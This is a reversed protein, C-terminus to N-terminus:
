GVPRLRVVAEVGGGDASELTIEGADVEVLRKAIALGLGSGSGSRARWFRDFARAREEDTLGVGEDRVRVEPGATAVTVVGGPPSAELANEILNDLVQGLREESARVRPAGNTTGVLTVGHDDALASWAAVRDSVVASLEVTSAPEAGADARALALLGEVLGNLREVEAVASELDQQGGPEVDRELNELRLRLATLPTRLQHSADAVFESQSRLLQELKAVTENFVIALSRVEPPGADEPARAGLDGEGVAAAADELSRLPKVAFASLRVGVITAFALVIAAIALLILWYRTIRADVASTPYTIRVAGHVRGSSAVPAAVFLLNENLTTSHRVGSAVVGALASAIEPRSAFTRRGTDRVDTDIVATGSRDVVVVRGGTERAYRYAVADREVKTALDSREARAHQIGLPVELSALVLVALALYGVLVRRTM